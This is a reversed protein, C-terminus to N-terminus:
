TGVHTWISSSTSVLTWIGGGSSVVTWSTTKPNKDMWEQLIDGLTVGEAVLIRYPGKNVGSTITITESLSPRSFARTLLESLTLTEDLTHVIAWTRDYTDSLILTEYLATRDYAKFCLSSITTSDYFARDLALLRNADSPTVSEDAPKGVGNSKTDSVNATESCTQAFATSTAYEWLEIYTGIGLGNTVASRLTLSTINDATNNWSSGNVTTNTVTTTAIRNEARSLSTRVYGSKAYILAEGYNVDGSANGDIFYFGTFDTNRAASATTSAGKIWQSGYNTGTDANCYIYENGGGDAGTIIRARVAYLKAMDGNLGSMEITTAAGSLTTAYKRVWCGGATTRKKMLFLHTGIGLTDATAAVFVLSTINDATNNWSLGTLRTDPVTTGSVKDVAHNTATRIYGSKAHIITDSLYVQNDGIGSILFGDIAGRAAAATTDAGYLIQYGYNSGTDNNPRIYLNSSQEGVVMAILRYEGATDGDLSSFTVSTAVETLLKEEVLDWGFM